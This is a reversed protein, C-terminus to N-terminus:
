FNAFGIGQSGIVPAYILLDSLSDFLVELRIRSLPRPSQFKTTIQVCFVRGEVTHVYSLLVLLPLNIGLEVRQGDQISKSDRSIYGPM